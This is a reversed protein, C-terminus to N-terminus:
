AAGPARGGRRREAGGWLRARRPQGVASSRPAGPPPPSRPPPCASGGERRGERGRARPGGAPRTPDHRGATGAAAGRSLQPGAGAAGRNWRGGKRRRKKRRGSRGRCRRVPARRPARPLREKEEAEGPPEAPARPRPPSPPCAPPLSPPLTGAPPPERGAGSRSGAAPLSRRSPSSRARRGRPRSSPPGRPAAERRPPRCSRGTAPVGEGPWRRGGPLAPCPPPRTRARASVGRLPPSGSAEDRSRNPKQPKKRRRGFYSTTFLAAAQRLEGRHGATPTAERGREGSRLEGNNPRAAEGSVM